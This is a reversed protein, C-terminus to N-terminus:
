EAENETDLGLQICIKDLYAREVKDDHVTVTLIRQEDSKKFTMHSGRTRALTWGYANLLREVDRFRASPPRRRIKEALKDRKTM